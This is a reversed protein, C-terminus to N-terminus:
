EESCSDSQNDSKYSVKKNDESEETDSQNFFSGDFAFSEQAKRKKTIESQSRGGTKHQKKYAAHQFANMMFSFMQEAKTKSTEKKQTKSGENSSGEQAASMKKIQGLIVKCEKADHSHTKHFPCYKSGELETRKEGFPIYRKGRPKGKNQQETNGSKGKVAPTESGAEGYSIRECLEVFANPNSAQMDFNLEVIRKQWSNPIGYM